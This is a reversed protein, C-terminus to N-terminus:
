CLGREQEILVSQEATIGPEGKMLMRPEREKERCQVWGKGPDLNEERQPVEASPM